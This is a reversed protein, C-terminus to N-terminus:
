LEPPSVQQAAPNLTLDNPNFPADITDCFLRYNLRDDKKLNYKNKLSQQQDGTLKIGLNKWLM